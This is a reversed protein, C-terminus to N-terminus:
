GPRDTAPSTTVRGPARFGSSSAGTPPGGSTPTTRDRPRGPFGHVLEGDSVDVLKKGGDPTLRVLDDMSALVAPISRVGSWATVDGRLTVPEREHQSTTRIGGRSLPRGPRSAAEFTVSPSLDLTSGRSSPPPWSAPDLDLEDVRRADVDATVAAALQQGADDAPRRDPCRARSRPHALRSRRSVGDRDCLALTRPCGCVSGGRRAVSAPATGHWATPSGGVSGLGHATEARALPAARDGAVKEDEVDLMPHRCVDLPPPPCTDRCTAHKPRPRSLTGRRPGAAGPSPSRGPRGRKESLTPPEWENALPTADLPPKM